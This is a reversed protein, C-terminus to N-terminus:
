ESYIMGAVILTVAASIFAAIMTAFAVISWYDVAKRENENMKTHNTIISLVIGSIIFHAGLPFIGIVTIGGLFVGPVGLAAYITQVVSTVRYYRHIGTARRSTFVVSNKILDYEKKKKMFLLVGVGIGGSFSVCACILPNTCWYWAPRSVITAVSGDPLTRYVQYAGFTIGAKKCNESSDSITDPPDETDVREIFSGDRSDYYFSSCSFGESLHVILKRDSLEFQVSRRNPTSVAWLFEGTESYVNVYSAGAYCVYIQKTSEDYLVTNITDPAYLEPQIEEYRGTDRISILAGFM